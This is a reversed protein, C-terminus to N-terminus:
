TLFKSRIWGIVLRNFFFSISNTIYNYFCFVSVDNKWSCFDLTTEHFCISIVLRISAFICTQSMFLILSGTGSLLIELIYDDKDFFIFFCFFKRHCCFDSSSHLCVPNEVYFIWALVFCSNPSTRFDFPDKWAPSLVFMRVSGNCM